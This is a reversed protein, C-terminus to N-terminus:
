GSEVRAGVRWYGTYPAGWQSASVDVDVGEDRCYDGEVRLRADKREEIIEILESAVVDKVVSVTYDGCTQEHVLVEAESPRRYVVIIM